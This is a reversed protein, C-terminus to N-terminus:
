LAATREEYMPFLLREESQVRSALLAETQPWERRLATVDALDEVTRSLFVKLVESVRRMNDAFTRIMRADPSRREVLKRLRPYLTDDELALHNLLAAGFAHLAGRVTEPEDHHLATTLAQGLAELERHQGRLTEVLADM